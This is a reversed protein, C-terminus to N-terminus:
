FPTDDMPLSQYGAAPERLRALQPAAPGDDFEDTRELWVNTTGLRHHEKQARVYAEADPRQRERLSFVGYGRQWHFDDTLGSQNIYHSGAGKMSKVVEAVAYRPPISVVLHVHNEIGNIAFVITQFEAAKKEMYPFLLQEIAADILPRREHTAWVLHYYVRWFSM